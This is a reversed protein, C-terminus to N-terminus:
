GTMQWYRSEMRREVSSPGAVPPECPAPAGPPTQYYYNKLYLADAFNIRTDGNCDGCAYTVSGEFKGWIRKMTYTKGGVEGTWGSYSIFLQNEAGSAVTPSVQDGLQISITLSDVVVGSGNLKAGYIDWSGSRSDDWVVLYNAGDFAVSPHREDHAATSIPIGGPDLVVGSQDVRAGYIDWPGSRSDEWVVLYNTDNFAVSAGFQADAAPVYVINTDILFESGRLGSNARRERNIANPGPIGGSYDTRVESNMNHELRPGRSVREFVMEGDVREYVVRGSGEDFKWYGVLGSDIDVASGTAISVVLLSSCLISISIASNKM